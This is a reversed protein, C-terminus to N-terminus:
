WSCPWATGCPRPPARSGAASADLRAGGLLRRVIRRPCPASSRALQDLLAIGIGGLPMHEEVYIMFGDSTARSRSARAGSARRCSRRRAPRPPERCARGSPSRATSATSARALRCPGRRPARATRAPVDFARRHCARERRSRRCGRRRCRGRRGADRSRAPATASRWRARRQHRLDPHVVAEQLDLALLHRLRLPVEDRDVLQEGVPRALHQAEVHEPRVIALRDVPRQLPQLLAAAHEVAPM